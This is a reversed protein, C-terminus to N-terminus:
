SKAVEHNAVNFIDKLTASPCITAVTIQRLLDMIPYWGDNEVGQEYVSALANYMATQHMVREQSRVDETDMFDLTNQYDSGSYKECLVDFTEKPLQPVVHPRYVKYEEQPAESAASNEGHKSNATLEKIAEIM